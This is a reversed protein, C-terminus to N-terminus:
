LSRLRGDIQIMEFTGDEQPDLDIGCETVWDDGGDISQTAGTLPHHSVLQRRHIVTYVEGSDSIAEFREIERMM